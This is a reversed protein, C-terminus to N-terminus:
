PRTSSPSAASTWRPSTSTTSGWSRASRGSSARPPGRLHLVGHQPRADGRHRLRRRAVGAGGAARHDHRPRQGSGRRDRRAARDPQRLGALRDLADREGHPRAGERADARERVVGARAGIPEPDGQPDGPDARAHRSEAIRGLYSAVMSRVGGEALGAVLVGLREALPVYPRVVETVEAGASVNVAYPVFEGKLALRVMEAVTTGAKDQAERTSAGLHPTVVVNDLAFLPSDTTPETAFVDLAAGGLHGSELAKALAAEDVLGGRATNVLRAGPKMLSLEHEGILGETEPTRPLHISVFDAQVLLAELTPMVDVGMEKARDASVYPDFAIVRMGFGAARTAVLGGVRGSGWSGSRRAPSSWARGGRASGRARREPRREGAPHEAGARAAAGDDARGRQHHQVAPRERGDRRAPHRRRRRRQGARDGRPRRGEPEDRGRPGRRHGADREPHDARRLARDRGRALGDKALDTRVDVQFDTELLQLGQPSLPETVLVRM